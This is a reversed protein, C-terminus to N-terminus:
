AVASHDNFWKKGMLVSLHNSNLIKLNYVYNPNGTKGCHMTPATNIKERSTLFTLAICYFILIHPILKVSSLLCYFVVM